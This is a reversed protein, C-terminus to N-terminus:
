TKVELEQFSFEIGIRKLIWDRLGLCLACPSNSVLIEATRKRKQLMFIKLM